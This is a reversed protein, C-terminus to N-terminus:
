IHTYENLVDMYSASLGVILVFKKKEREHNKKETQYREIQPESELQGVACPLEPRALLCKVTAEAMRHQSGVRGGADTKVAKTATRRRGHPKQACPVSFQTRRQDSLETRKRM